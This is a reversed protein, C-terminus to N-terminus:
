LEAVGSGRMSRVTFMPLFARHRTVQQIGYGNTDPYPTAGQAKAFLCSEM